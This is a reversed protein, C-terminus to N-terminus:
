SDYGLDNGEFRARTFFAGEILREGRKKGIASPIQKIMDEFGRHTADIAKRMEAIEYEDKVLRAESVWSALEEDGNDERVRSDIYNDEGRIISTEKESALFDDLSD